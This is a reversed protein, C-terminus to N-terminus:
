DPAQQQDPAQQGYPDQQQGNPDQQGYPDQQQGNPDQQGYPDQQQGNPDQQGYGYPDQQQGNPDQQGYPDQQQGQDGQAQSQAQAPQTGLTATVTQQSGDRQVTLRVEDGPKHGGIAAALADPDSVAKGDVAVITDGEQLGAKDAASGSQVGAVQVGSGSESASLQVGLYAHQVTGGSELQAVVSKVTNSPIAFGIGVNGNEASGSGNLIQSNVGIVQGHDDLLPGGSNGPNIPADTQIVHDIPYGDPADIQRDLASVVGSTLTDDLGYPNGIAYTPDGVQLKGSDAFQLPTFTQGGPNEVRLLALDGSEDRGAVSAPHTAGDGVKVSVTTAGEVVHANTVILGQKSVVFGTGTAQGQSTDATVYAVSGKAHAYVQAATLTGKPTSPTDDAIKTAPQQSTEITTTATHGGDGVVGVVAAGGAAGLVAAAGLTLLAKPTHM